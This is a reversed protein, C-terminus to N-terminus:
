CEEHGQDDLWRALKALEDAVERTVRARYKEPNLAQPDTFITVWRDFVEAERFAVLEVRQRAGLGGYDGSWGEWLEFHSGIDCTM